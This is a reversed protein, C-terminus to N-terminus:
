YYDHSHLLQVLSRNVSSSISSAKAETCWIRAAFCLLFFIFLFHQVYTKHLGSGSERFSVSKNITFRFIERKEDTTASVRGNTRTRDNDGIDSVERLTRSINM